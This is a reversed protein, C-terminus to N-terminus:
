SLCLCDSDRTAGGSFSLFVSFRFYLCSHDVASLSSTRGSCSARFSGAFCNRCFFRFQCGTGASWDLDMIVFCFSRLYCPSNRM